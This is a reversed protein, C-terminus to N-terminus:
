AAAMYLSQGDRSVRILTDATKKTSEQTKESSYRLIAVEERLARLEALLEKQSFIDNTAKNSFIHSPGTAELEPGNEGVIRLGGKFSGGKAFLPVDPYYRKMWESFTTYGSDQWAFSGEPAGGTYNTNYPSTAWIDKYRALNTSAATSTTPATSEGQRTVPPGVVPLTTKDPPPAPINVPNTLKDLIPQLSNNLSDQLAKNTVDSASQASIINSNYDAMTKALKQLETLQGFTNDVISSTLRLAETYNDNATIFADKATEAASKTVKLVDIGTMAVVQNWSILGDLAKNAAQQASVVPDNAAIAAYAAAKAAALARPGVQDEIKKQLDFLAQQWKAVEQSATAAANTAQLIPDNASNAPGAKAETVSAVADLAGQVSGVTTAFEVSTASQTKALQLLSQATNTIKGLAVVDGAKAATIQQSFQAKLSQLQQTQSNAGLDTTQLSEIFDRITVALGRLNDKASSIASSVSNTATVLNKQAGELGQAVTTYATNLAEQAGNYGSVIAFTASDLATKFTNMTSAVSALDSNVASTASTLDQLSYIMKQLQINAPKTTALEKARSTNLAEQNRGLVKLLNIQENSYTNSLTNYQTITDIQDQLALNYQFQAKQASDMGVMLTANYDDASLLLKRLQDELSKSTDILSQLDPILSKVVPHLTDFAESLAILSSYTEASAKDTIQFGLILNKFGDRTNPMVVGLRSFEKTIAAQVPILQEAETLFKDKFTSTNSLFTDLSGSAQILFQGLEVATNNASDAIIKNISTFALKIDKTDKVLRLVFDTTSEGLQQFQDALKQLSPFVAGAAKDLQIGIEAMVANAFDAGTLGMGSAKLNINFGNLIDSVDSISSGMTEASSTLVTTFNKFIATVYKSVSDPLAGKNTSNSSDSFLGWFSSSKNTVNEYTQRSGQGSALQGATGGIMVGKDQVSTSSSNFGLFSKSSANQTGFATGTIGSAILAKIFQGTNDRIAVLARYTSGKDFDLQTFNIKELRAIGDVISTSVKTNDGLAGGGNNGLKGNSYTQGTGQVKQQEEASFGAPPAASGGGFGLSAMLALLAAAGAFGAWGGQSFLQAVGGAIKVPLTALNSAMTTANIILSQAAAAKEVTSLLKYAVTKEAFMNKSAGAVKQIDTIQDKNHQKNLSALDELAKERGQTTDAKSLKNELALKQEGYAKDKTSLNTMAKIADYLASGTSGFLVVLDQQIEKQKNLLELYTYQMDIQKVSLDYLEKNVTLKEKGKDVETQAILLASSSVEGTGLNAREKLDALKQEAVALDNIDQLAKVNNAGALKDLEAERAKINYLTESIDGQDRLQNLRTSELAAKADMISLENNARTVAQDGLTKQILLRDAQERELRNIQATITANDRKREAIDKEILLEAKRQAYGELKKTANKVELDILKNQIALKDIDFTNNAQAVETLMKANSIQETHGGVLKEQTNLESLSLTLSTNQLKIWDQALANRQHLTDAIEKDKAVYKDAEFGATAATLHAGAGSFQQVYRNAMANVQDERTFSGNSGNGKTSEGAKSVYFATKASAIAVAEAILKAHELELPPVSGAKAAERALVLEASFGEMKMTNDIIAIQLDYSARLEQEKLNIEQIKIEYEKGATVLGAKQAFSLDSTAKTLEAKAIADKLALTIMTNSLEGLRAIVPTFIQKEKELTSSANKALDAQAKSLDSDAQKGVMSKSTTGTMQTGFIKYDTTSKEYEGSAKLKNITAQAEAVAKAANKTAESMQTLEGINNRINGGGAMSILAQMKPNNAMILMGEIAKQPNIFSESLSNGMTELMTGLKGIGDKFQLKNTITDLEQDVSKMSDLFGKDAATSNADAEKIKNSLELVKNLVLAPDSSKFALKLADSISKVSDLTRPDVHLLEAIGKQYENKLEPSFILTGFLARVESGMSKALVTANDKGFMSSLSDKASDWWGTAEQWKKLAIIQGEMSTTLGDIANTMATISQINLIDKSKHALFDIADTATKVASAGEDIRSNFVNQQETAKTLVGDLIAFAATAIGVVMFVSSMSAALTFIGSAASKVTGTVAQTAVQFNNLGKIKTTSIVGKDDTDIQISDKRAAALDKWGQKTAAFFGQTQTNEAWINAIRRASYEQSAKDAIRQQQAVINTYQMSKIKAATANTIAEEENIYAAKTLVINELAKDYGDAALKNKVRLKDAIRELHGEEETTVDKPDKQLIGYAKSTKSMTSAARINNMEALHDRLIKTEDAASLMAAEKIAVSAGVSAAVADTARKTALQFSEEALRKANERFAGIAPIAQKLLISAIGAMAIALGTPSEALYKAVPGLGRDILGLISQLANAASAELKNFPNTPIDITSFKDIGQQLVANAFAQKKEYATLSLATKGVQRGYDQYIQNASVIIGLEDLLQPRNKTIGKTLRDMADAMDWGLAQSAKKAVEGMKLIQSNTMEAASANAVSTLSDKLSLAGDTVKNLTGALSSLNKGSVASLQEIGQLLHATNMAEKLAGFAASVAFINAAFTAYVHVLGGLGQAQAAFDRGAAGTMGGIGRSMNSDSANQMGQAMAPSPSRVANSNSVGQRAAALAMTPGIKSAASAAGELAARLEKANSTVKATSGGDNVNTRIEINQIAM